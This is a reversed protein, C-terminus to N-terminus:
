GPMWQGGFCCLVTGTFFGARPSALFGCAYAVDEATGWRRVPIRRTIRDDGDVVSSPRSQAAGVVPHTAERQEVHIAGPAVDNVTIGHPGLEIALAKTLARLGGKATVNHARDALGVFADPGTIHIIRGWHREAMGPAFARALRFASVLQVNLINVFDEPPMDFFSQAPRLAANSVLVDIGGFAADAQEQLEEVTSPDSIDGVVTLTGVDLAKAEDAVAKAEDVNSRTNIVVNAGKAALELVTARGINRGSGTVLATKGELEREV